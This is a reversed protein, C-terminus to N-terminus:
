KQVEQTPLPIYQSFLEVADFYICREHDGDKQWGSSAAEPTSLLPLSDLEFNRRYTLVADKGKRLPERLGIIKNRKGAWYPKEQFAIIVNELGGRWYRGSEENGAAHLSIPRMTLPGQEPSYERKRIM